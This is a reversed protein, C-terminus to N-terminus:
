LFVDVSEHPLLLVLLLLSAVHPRREGTRVHGGGIDVVLGLLRAPLPIVQAADQVTLLLEELRQLVLLVLPVDDVVELVNWDVPPLLGVGVDLLDLADELVVGLLVVEDVVDVVEYVGVRAVPVRGVRIEGSFLLHPVLRLLLLIPFRLSSPRAREVHVSVRVPSLAVRVHVVQGVVDLHLGHDLRGASAVEV